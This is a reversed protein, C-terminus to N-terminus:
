PENSRAALENRTAREGRIRWRLSNVSFAQSIVTCPSPLTLKQEWRDTDKALAQVGLESLLWECGFSLPLRKENDNDCDEKRSQLWKFVNKFFFIRIM